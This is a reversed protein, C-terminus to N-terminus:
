ESFYKFYQWRAFDQARESLEEVAVRPHTCPQSGDAVSIVQDALTALVDLIDDRSMNM